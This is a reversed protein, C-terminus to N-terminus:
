EVPKIPKTTSLSCTGWAIWRLEVICAYSVNDNAISVKGRKFGWFILEGIYGGATCPAGIGPIYHNTLENFVTSFM